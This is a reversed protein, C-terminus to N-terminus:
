KDLIKKTNEIILDLAEEESLSGDQTQTEKIKQNLFVSLEGSQAYEQLDDVVQIAEKLNLHAATNETINGPIMSTMEVLGKVENASFAHANISVLYTAFMLTITIKKM